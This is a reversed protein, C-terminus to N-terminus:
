IWAALLLGLSYLLGFFLTLQGTGALAQNLPRGSQRFVVGLVRYALPASFWALLVYVPAIGALIFIPLLLYAGALCAAYERRTWIAGVRVALTRKGALRDTEIDRLNNVVLIATVLLGIPVSSWAALPSVREAQVFYTGCTALPGFFIFVVLDGLGFYGFPIPGGTYAVAALICALGIWIVAWGAIWALYVGILAALGFVIWMGALVTGPKLLGAQTVRLPGLREGRDTGRHFDFVDNALNAGIQLLLAGALAALAPLWQFGGELYAAASGVVVPAAAAPLTKPRIALWWIQLTGPRAPAPNPNAM